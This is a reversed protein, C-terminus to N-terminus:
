STGDSKECRELQTAKSVLARSARRTRCRVARHRHREAHRRGNGVAAPHRPQARVAKAIHAACASATDALLGLWPTQRNAFSRPLRYAAGFPDLKFDSMSM